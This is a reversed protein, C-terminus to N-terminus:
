AATAKGLLLKVNVISKITHSTMGRTRATIMGSSGTVHLINTGEANNVIGSKLFGGSSIKKDGAGAAESRLLPCAGPKIPGVSLGTHETRVTHGIWAGPQPLAGAAHRPYSAGDM